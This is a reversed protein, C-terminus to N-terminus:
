GVLRRDEKRTAGERVTLLEGPVAASYTEVVWWHSTAHRSPTSYPRPPETVGGSASSGVRSCVAQRPERPRPGRYGRGRLWTLALAARSRLSRTVKYTSGWSNPTGIM